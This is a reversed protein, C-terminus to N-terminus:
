DKLEKFTKRVAEESNIQPKWGKNSIKEIDLLMRPVDGTWGKEGGKFKINTDAGHEEVAIEAIRSVSISDKNGINYIEFGEIEDIYGFAALLDEIHLYSKEQRGDGLVKLESPDKELKQIFDYIVGKRSRSGVINALRLCVGNIGFSNCYASIMAEVGLKSSGYLSIPQLPGYDEPTPVEVNEGYVTSSSTFIIENIDNKMMAEMLNKSAKLNDEFDKRTNSNQVQVNANGALHYVRSFSSDLKENIDNSKLDMEWIDAKPNVLDRRGTSFNDIVVVDKNKDVLYDVLHSGIFGAGGTVVVKEGM